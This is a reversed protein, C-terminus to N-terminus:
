GGILTSCYQSAYGIIKDCDERYPTHPECHAPFIEGGDATQLNGIDGCFAEKDGDGQKLCRQMFLNVGKFCNPSTCAKIRKAGGALCSTKSPFEVKFDAIRQDTEDGFFAMGLVFVSIAAASALFPWRM